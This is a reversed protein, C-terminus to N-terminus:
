EQVPFRVAGMPRVELRRCAGRGFVREMGKVYEGLLDRPVFTQMTGAFGGGHIRWAGRKGLIQASLALALPISQDTPTKCSFCNQLLTWSSQGSENVLALFRGFNHSNLAEVQEEVRRNEEFFHFARLVARDGVERRLIPLSNWFKRQEVDRLVSVGFFRAVARHDEKIAAYESTLGAHSGGTEMIVLEYESSALGFNVQQVTPLAPDAFDIAMFGGVASTVQDMLGSPKGFFEVEAFHGARAMALPDLQGDNFLVNVIEAVLMEFSASSSLGSGAPVDSTICADFGGIQYGQQHLYKCIGRVLAQSTNRERPNPELADLYIEVPEYGQSHVRISNGDNRAAIGLADLNIAAALVRGNEHDTHNGGIETRGPASCIEFDQHDPFEREFRRALSLIRKRQATLIREGDGYLKQLFERGAQSDLYARALALSTM